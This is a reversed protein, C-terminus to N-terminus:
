NTFAIVTIHEAGDVTTASYNRVLIQCSGATISRITVGRDANADTNGATALVYYNTNSFDTDWNITYTGTAQRTISSVNFSTIATIPSSGSGNFLAMGQFVNNSTITAGDVIAQKQSSSTTLTHSSVNINGDLTQSLTVNGGSSIAIADTDSTSGITGGDPIIINAM